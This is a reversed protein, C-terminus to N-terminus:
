LEKIIEEPISFKFIVWSNTRYIRIQQYTNELKEKEYYINKVLQSINDVMQRLLKSSQLEPYQQFLAVLDTHKGPGLAELLSKEFNPYVDLVQKEYFKLLEDHKEEALKAKKIYTRVEAINEKVMGALVFQAIMSGLTVACSIGFVVRGGLTIETNGTLHGILFLTCAILWVFGNLFIAYM